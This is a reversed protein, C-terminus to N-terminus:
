RQELEKLTDEVQERRVKPTNRASAAATRSVRDPKAVSEKRKEVQREGSLIPYFFVWAVGGAAVTVLFVLALTQLPM